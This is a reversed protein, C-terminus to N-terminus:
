LLSAAALSIYLYCAEVVPPFPLSLYFFLPLHLSYPLLNKPEPNKQSLTPSSPSPIYTSLSTPISSTSNPPSFPRTQSSQSLPPNFTLNIIRSLM